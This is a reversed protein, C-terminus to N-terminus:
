YGLESATPYRALEPGKVKVKENGVEVMRQGTTDYTQRLADRVDHKSSIKKGLGYNFYPETNDVMAQPVTWIRHAMSGCERCPLFEHSERMPQFIEEQWGCQPCSYDYNPM